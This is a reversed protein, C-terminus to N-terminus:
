EQDGIKDSAEKNEKMLRSAVMQSQQAVLEWLRIVEKMLEGLIDVLLAQRTLSSGSTKWWKM